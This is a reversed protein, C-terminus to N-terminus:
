IIDSIIELNSPHSYSRNLDKISIITLYQFLHLNFPKFILM